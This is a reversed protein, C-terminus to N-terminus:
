SKKERYLFFIKKQIQLIVITVKSLKVMHEDYLKNNRNKIVQNKSRIFVRTTGDKVVVSKGSISVFNFIAHISLKM